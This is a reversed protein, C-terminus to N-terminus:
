HLLDEVKGHFNIDLSEHYFPFGDSRWVAYLLGSTQYAIYMFRGDPSFSLGTTDDEFLQSELVTYFKGEHNRAHVGARVEPGSDETFYLLEQSADESRQVQDPSGDLLGIATTYNTYTNADLDLVFLQKNTKCVFYMKSDHVDLGETNPYYLAANKRGEERDSTWIFNGGDNKLNPVLMLYETTGDNHLMKWPKIWDPSNPTFRQLAGDEADETVFFRPSDQNRVDYAFNVWSGGESGLTIVKPKRKGTPDVQHIKGDKGNEECSIWTGFPTKGGGKNLTTGKLLIDYNAINGNKDFTLAGVGGKKHPRESNSVYIWGGDNEGSEDPFTAGADPFAHFKDESKSKGGNKTEYIVKKDAVSLIRADLGDSLLLGHRSIKLNGPAYTTKNPALNPNSDQTPNTPPQTGKINDTFIIKSPAATPPSIVNITPTATSLSNPFGFDRGPLTESASSSSSRHPADESDSTIAITVALVIVLLLVACTIFIVKQVRGRNNYWRVLKVKNAVKSGNGMGGKQSDGDDSFSKTPSDKIAPIDDKSQTAQRMKGLSGVKKPQQGGEIDDGDNENWQNFKMSWSDKFM